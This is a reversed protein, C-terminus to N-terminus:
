VRGKISGMASGTVSVVKCEGKMHLGRLGRRDGIEGQGVRGESGNGRLGGETRGKGEKRYRREMGKRGKGEGDKREGRGMNGVWGRGM